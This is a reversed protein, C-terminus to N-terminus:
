ESSHRSGNCCRWVSFLACRINLQMLKAADMEAVLDESRLHAYRYLMQASKHGTIQRVKADSLGMEVLTSTAEHRLDHYRLRGKIGVEELM